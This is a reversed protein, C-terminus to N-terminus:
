AAGEWTLLAVRFRTAEAAAYPVWRDVPVKRRHRGPILVRASRGDVSVFTREVSPDHREIVGLFNRVNIPDTDSVSCWRLYARYLESTRCVTHPVPLRNGEWDTVFAPVGYDRRPPANSIRAAQPQCPAAVPQLGFGFGAPGAAVLGLEALVDVGTSAAAGRSACQIAMEQPLGAARASRLLSRFVRGSAEAALVARTLAAPDTKGDASM